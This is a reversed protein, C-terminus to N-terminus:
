YSFASLCMFTIGWSAICSEGNLARRERGNKLDRLVTINPGLKHDLFAWTKYENDM